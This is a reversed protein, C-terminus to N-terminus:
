REEGEGRPHSKFLEPYCKPCFGIGTDEYIGHKKCIWRWVETGDNSM